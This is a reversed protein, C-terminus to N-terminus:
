RRQFGQTLSRMTAIRGSWVQAYSIWKKVTRIPIIAPGPLQFLTGVHHLTRNENRTRRCGGEAQGTIEAPSRAIDFLYAPKFGQRLSHRLQKCYCCAKPM